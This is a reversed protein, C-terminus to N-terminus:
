LAFCMLTFIRYKKRKKPNFFNEYLQFIFSIVIIHSIICIQRPIAKAKIRVIKTVSKPYARTQTNECHQTREAGTTHRKATFNYGQYEITM